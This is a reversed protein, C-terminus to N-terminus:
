GKTVVITATYKNEPIKVDAKPHPSVSILAVKYKSVAMEKPELYTNLKVEENNVLIAVQANGAWVCVAGDPCRSDEILDAFEITIGEGFIKIEKGFEAEIEEGLEPTVSTTSNRCGALVILIGILYLTNKM